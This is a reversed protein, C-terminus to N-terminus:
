VATRDSIQNTTGDELSEEEWSAGVTLMHMGLPIVASTKATTNTIEIDRSQNESRERQVFTESTGW